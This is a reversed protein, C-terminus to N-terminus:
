TIGFLKEIVIVIAYLGPLINVIFLIPWTITIGLKYLKRIMWGIKRGSNFLSVLCSILLVFVFVAFSCFVITGLIYGIVITKDPFYGGIPHDGYDYGCTLQALAVLASYFLFSCGIFVFPWTYYVFVM